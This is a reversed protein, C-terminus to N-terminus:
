RYIYEVRRTSPEVLVPVNNVYAYQYDDYGPVPALVVEAPLGVGEVVEGNLYVPAVPHSVVYSRVTPPPTIVLSEATVPREILTGTIAPAAVASGVTEVPAEYRVAPVSNLGEALILSRGSLSAMLYQSYAWGQRGNHSVQCWLSGEICGIITARGRDPIAGVISYQPGPGSRLNLPTTATVVTAASAPVSLAIAATAAAYLIAKRSRM